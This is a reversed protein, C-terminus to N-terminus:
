CARFPTGAALHRRSGISLDSAADGGIRQHRHGRGLSEEVSQRRAPPPAPETQPQLEEQEGRSQQRDRQRQCHQDGGPARRHDRLAVDALVELANGLDERAVGGAAGLGGELLHPRQGALGARLRDEGVLDIERRAEAEGDLIGRGHKLLCTRDEEEIAGAAHQRARIARVAAADALDPPAGSRIPRIEPGAFRVPYGLLRTLSAAARSLGCESLRRIRALSAPAGAGPEAVGAGEDSV